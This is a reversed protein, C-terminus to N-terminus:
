AALRRRLALPALGVDWSRFAGVALPGPRKPTSEHANDAEAAHGGGGQQQSDRSALRAAARGRSPVFHLTLIGTVPM